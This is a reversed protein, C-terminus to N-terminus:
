LMPAPSNTAPGEVSFWEFVVQGWSLSERDRRAGARIPLSPKFRLAKALALADQDAQKSGSGILVSASFVFGLPHVSVQIVTNTLLLLNTQVPVQVSGILGRAALSEDLHFTSRTRLPVPSADAELVPPAPKGSFRRPGVINTRTFESFAAGLEDPSQVLWPVPESWDQSQHKIPPVTLWAPGSFGRRDALAFLTPDKLAIWEALASGAPIETVLYQTFRSDPRRVVIPTRESLLFVLGIQAALAFSFIGLWRARPWEPPDFAPRSM